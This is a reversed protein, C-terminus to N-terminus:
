IDKWPNDADPDTSSSRMIRSMANPTLGIEALLSHAHRLAQNLMTAEPRPKITKGGYRSVNTYTYGNKKLFDYHKEVQELRVAALLYVDAHHSDLYDLDDVCGMLRDMIEQARRSVSGVMVPKQGDPGPGSPRRDKRATGKLEKVKEPLRKRGGRRAVM